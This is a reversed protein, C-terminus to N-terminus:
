MGPAGPPLPLINHSQRTFIYTPQKNHLRSTRSTTPLLSALQEDQWSVPLTKEESNGMYELNPLGRPSTYTVYWRHRGRIHCGAVNIVIRIRM